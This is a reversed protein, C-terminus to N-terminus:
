PPGEGGVGGGNERDPEEVILLGREELASLFTTVEAEIRDRPEGAFRACLAGVIAGVTAGRACTTAIAAATESLELGREPYLLMTKGSLPDHRLRAKRALRVRTQPGIV